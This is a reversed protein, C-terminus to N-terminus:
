KSNDDSKENGEEKNDNFNKVQESNNLIIVNLKGKVDMDIDKKDRQDLYQKGLWICLTYNGAMALAYQKRRISARCNDIARKYIDMFKKDKELTHRHVGLISAIEEHTAMVSALKKVKVYDIIKPPRGAKM